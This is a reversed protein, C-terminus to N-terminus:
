AVSKRVVVVSPRVRVLADHADSIGPDAAVEDLEDLLDDALAISRM